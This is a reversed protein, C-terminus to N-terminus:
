SLNRSKLFRELCKAFDVSIENKFVEVILCTINHVIFLMILENRKSNFSKSRLYSSFKRKVMAFTTEVNSRRHYIRMFQDRHTHFFRHMRLWMEPSNKNQPNSAPSFPIFPVAGMKGILQHVKKSSYARDGTIFKPEFNDKLSELLEPVQKVDSDYGGTIKCGCVVNTRTGIIVHGKLFNRRKKWHNSRVVIKGNPYKINQWRDFQYTSFGTSDMSYDDEIQALPMASITLIKNLLEFNDEEKLFNSLTNFHPAKKIYGALEAHKLDSSIKRGSYNSYLKLGACFFLDRFSIILSLEYLLEYFIRKEQTKALNYKHWNISHPIFHALIEQLETDSKKSNSKDM